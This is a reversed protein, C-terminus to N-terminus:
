QKRRYVDFQGLEGASDLQYDVAILDRLADFEGFTQKFDTESGSCPGSVRPATSMIFYKPKAAQFEELFIARYDVGKPPIALHYTDVFRSAAKRDAEVYIAPVSGWVFIADEAATHEKLYASVADYSSPPREGHVARWLYRSHGGIKWAGVVVFVGVAVPVWWWTAGRNSRTASHFRYLTGAALIALPPLMPLFHYGVFAGHLFLVLLGVAFWGVLLKVPRTIIQRQTLLFGLPVLGLLGLMYIPVRTPRMMNEVMCGLYHGTQNLQVHQPAIVFQTIVLDSLAGKAAFYIGCMSLPAAFGLALACLRRLIQSGQRRSSTIAAIIMLVGVLGMPLKFLTAVAAWAAALGWDASRDDELARLLWLMSLALPLNLFGDAQAMSWYDHAFYGFIYLAGALLGIERRGYVRVAIAFLVMATALEWLVDLARLAVTSTGFLAVPLAYAYFIGPGKVDWADRYPMGGKVITSAIYTFTPSDIETRPYALTTMGLLLAVVVLINRQHAM